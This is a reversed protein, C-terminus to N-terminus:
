VVQPEPVPVVFKGGKELFEAQQKMVEDKFNWALLLVYDPMDEVLKEPAVIPVHVGPMHLGISGKDIKKEVSLVPSGKIHNFSIELIKELVVVLACGIPVDDFKM